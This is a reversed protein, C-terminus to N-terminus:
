KTSARSDPDGSRIARHFMQWARQAHRSVDFEGESVHWLIGPPIVMGLFMLAVAPPELEPRITGQAQGQRVLDAIRGLYDSMLRQIRTKREPHGSHFDDSFIIRPIARGERIVRVHHLLLSKLRLVPDATEECAAQVNAIMRAAMRDIVALLIEDKNRFHRYIGSPVLGVRRAVAAMSLKGLGKAAVLALAAEAIQQRRVGTELKELSMTTEM